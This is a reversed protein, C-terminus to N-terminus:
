RVRGDTFTEVGEIQERLGVVVGQEEGVHTGTM